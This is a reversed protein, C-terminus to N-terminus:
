DPGYRMDYDGYLRGRVIAFNCFLIQKSMLTNYNYIPQKWSSFLSRAMVGPWSVKHPGVIQELKRDIDVKNCLYVEDFTFIILKEHKQMNRGKFKMCHIIANLIDLEVKINLAWRRLTQLSPLPMKQVNRLYRYTNPSICRLVM